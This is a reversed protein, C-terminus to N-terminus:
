HHTLAETKATLEPSTRMVRALVAELEAGTQANVAMKLKGAEELFDRDQMTADFARRLAELRERPVEPPAAMPRGLEVSSSYFDLIQRQEETKAFDYISPASLAPVPKREVNFLVRVKGQRIWGPRTNEFATVTQCIGQVEGREMALVVNTSSGYGEVLAFRMGLLNKLLVPTSTVATGAGAGGVILEREFLDAASRVPASEMAVCVRNTLEPSGIWGFKLPDYKVGPNKVLAAEAVGRGLMGIVSGDRAAVNYLHNTGTLQGGGPMNQPVFVPNGPIFRGMHRAIARAWIDYDGGAETVIVLKLQRDRYFSEVSQASASAGLLCAGALALSVTRPAM